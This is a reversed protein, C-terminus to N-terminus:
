RRQDRILSHDSDPIVSKVEVRAVRTQNGTPYPIKFRQTHALSTEMGVLQLCMIRLMNRCMNRTMKQVTELKRSCSFKTLIVALSKSNKSFRIPGSIVFDLFHRSGIE